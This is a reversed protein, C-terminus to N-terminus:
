RSDRQFPFPNVTGRLLRPLTRSVLILENDRCPRSGMVSAGWLTVINTHGQSISKLVSIENRIQELSPLSRNRCEVSHLSRSVMHERGAM